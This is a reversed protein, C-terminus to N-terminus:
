SVHKFHKPAQSSGNQIMTNGQVAMGTLRDERSIEEWADDADQLEGDRMPRLSDM